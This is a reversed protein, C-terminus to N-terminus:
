NSLYKTPLHSPNIHLAEEQACEWLHNRSVTLKAIQDNKIASTLQGLIDKTTEEGKLTEKRQIELLSM